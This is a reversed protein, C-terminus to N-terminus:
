VRRTQGWPVFKRIWRLRFRPNLGASSFTSRTAEPLVAAALEIAAEDDLLM